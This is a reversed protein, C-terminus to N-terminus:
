LYIVKELSFSYIIKEKVSKKLTESLASAYCDMQTKYLGVLRGEPNDYGKMGDTKYDLLVIEDNEIFFADIVGQLLVREDSQSLPDVASAPLGYVFPQEIFLNGEAAAKRMRKAMDTNLFAAINRPKIVSLAESDIQGADAAKKIFASVDEESTIDTKIILEMIRHYLTGRKAGFGAKIMSRDESDDPEEHYFAPRNSVAEAEYEDMAAHKLQSVSYKLPLGSMRYPYSYAFYGSIRETLEPRAEDPAQEDEKVLRKKCEAYEEDLLIENYETYSNGGTLARGLMVSYSTCELIENYSLPGDKHVYDVLNKYSLKSTTSEAYTSNAITYIFLKQRARTLAVYLVRIEEAIKEKKEQKKMYALQFSDRYLGYDPYMVSLGLGHNLNVLYKGKETPFRSECSILFVFPFELGKSKHITMVNVADNITNTSAEEDDLENESLSDIYDIFAAIGKLNTSEFNDAKILLLDLNSRRAAGAPLVSVYNYYDTESYIMSIINRLSTFSQIEKISEYTEFFYDLKKLIDPDSDTRNMYNVVYRYYFENKVGGEEEKSAGDLKIVSLEEDSLGCMFSRLVSVLPIDQYPNDLIKLYNIIHKIERTKFYEANSQIKVPIGYNAFIDSIGAGLGKVSRALICIDGYTVDRLSGEDVVQAKSDILQKIRDAILTIEKSRAVSIKDEGKILINYENKANNIEPFDNYIGSYNLRANEDYDIGSFKETMCKEFVTNVTNIVSDTSRFNINLDIVEEEASAERYKKYKGLFLSPDALRFRYISQKVDGVMFTNKRNSKGGSISSLIIEQIGNSDQYEDIMIEDYKDKLELACSTPTNDPNVLIKVVEHSIDSFEMLNINRKESLFAEYVEKILRVLTKAFPRIHANDEVIQELDFEAESALDTFADLPKNIAAKILEQTEKDKVFQKTIRKSINEKGDKDLSNLENNFEKVASRVETYNKAESLKIIVPKYFQLRNFIKAEGVAGEERNDFYLEEARNVDSLIDPMQSRIREFLGMFFSDKEYANVSNVMYSNLLGDFFEEARPATGSHKIVSKIIEIITNDNRNDGYEGVLELFDRDQMEYLNRMLRDIVDNLILETENQDGIRYNPNVDTMFFYNKLVKSCFSDITCIDAYPVKEVQVRLRERVADPTTEDDIIENFKRIIKDKMQAAANVTFTVILIRDIDVPNKEDTVQKIIRQVLVTTKGSGAAASVLLDKIPTDIVKIQDDTYKSM